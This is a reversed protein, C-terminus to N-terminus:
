IEVEEGGIFLRNGIKEGIALSLKNTITISGIILGFVIIRELFDRAHWHYISNLGVHDIRM